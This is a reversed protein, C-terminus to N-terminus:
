LYLDYFEAFTSREFEIAQKSVGAEPRLIEFGHFGGEFLTFRTPVGAAEIAQMYAITEDKFPEVTGVWSITPPLGSVDQRLAPSGYEPVAGNLHGLYNEWALANSRKDWVATGEFQASPTEMRHDLMPYIPMQFALEVVGSDVVRHTFAATMGGGGSHGAVIFKDDRIGLDAAHNKMYQITDFCDDLGAPYPHGDLSLRYAPAVIAVDRRELLGEFFDHAQEPVGVQYGGGHIYLMAPLPGTANAPKYVRARISHGPTTTSPIFIEDNFVGDIQNGVMPRMAFRQMMRLGWRRRAVWNLARGARYVSQLDEHYSSRPATTM